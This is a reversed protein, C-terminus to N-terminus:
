PTKFERLSWHAYCGDDERQMFKVRKCVLLHEWRKLEDAPIGNGRVWSSTMYRQVFLHMGMNRHLKSVCLSASCNVGYLEVGIRNTKCGVDPVVFRLAWCRGRLAYSGVM